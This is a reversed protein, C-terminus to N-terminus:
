KCVILTNLSYVYDSKVVHVKMVVQNITHQPFRGGNRELCSSEQRCHASRSLAGLARPRLDGMVAPRSTRRHHWTRGPGYRDKGIRTRGAQGQVDIEGPHPLRGPLQCTVRLFPRKRPLRGMKQSTKRVARPLPLQSSPPFAKRARGGPATRLIPHIHPHSCSSHLKM